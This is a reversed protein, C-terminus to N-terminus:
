EARQNGPVIVPVPPTNPTLYVSAVTLMGPLATTLMPFWWDHGWVVATATLVSATISGLAAMIAKSTTM